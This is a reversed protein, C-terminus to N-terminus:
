EKFYPDLSTKVMIWCDAFGILYGSQEHLAIEAPMKALGMRENDKIKQMIKEYDAKTLKKPMEDKFM